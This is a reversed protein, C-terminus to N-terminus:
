SPADVVEAEAGDARRDAVVAVEELAPADEGQFSGLHDQEGCAFRVIGAPPPSSVKSPRAGLQALLVHQQAWSSSSSAAASGRLPQVVEEGASV